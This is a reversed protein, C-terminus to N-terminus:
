PSYCAGSAADLSKVAATQAPGKRESAKAVHRDGGSQLPDCAGRIMAKEAYKVPLYVKSSAQSM